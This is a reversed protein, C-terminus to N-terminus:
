TLATAPTRATRRDEEPKIYQAGYTAMLGEFSVGRNYPSRHGPPRHYWRQRQGHWRYDLQKLQEQIPRTAGSIWIWTGVLIMEVDDTIIKAALTEAIKDMVSQERTHNYYYRHTEGREDVTESRDLAKLAEHYAANIAQMTVTDGGRDPHHLLALRRYEQKVQAVTELDNFYAAM